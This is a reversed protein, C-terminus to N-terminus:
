RPPLSGSANGNKDFAFVSGKIYHMDGTSKTIVSNTGIGLRVSNNYYFNLLPTRDYASCIIRDDFDQDKLSISPGSRQSSLSLMPEMKDKSWVGLQLTAGGVSNNFVTGVTNLNEDIIDVSYVRLKTAYIRNAFVANYSANKLETADKAVASSVGVQSLWGGIMGGVFSWFSILLVVACLRFRRM